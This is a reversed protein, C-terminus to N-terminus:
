PIWIWVTLIYIMVQTSGRDGNSQSSHNSWPPHLDPEM